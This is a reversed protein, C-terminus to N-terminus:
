TLLAPTRCYFVTSSVASGAAPGTTGQLASAADVDGAMSGCLAHVCNRKKTAVGPVRGCQSVRVYTLLPRGQAHSRRWAGRSRMVRILVARRQMREVADRSHMYVPETSM